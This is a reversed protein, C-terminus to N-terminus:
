KWFMKREAYKKEFFKLDNQEEDTKAMTKLRKHLQETKSSQNEYLASYALHLYAKFHQRTKGLTQAYYYHVEPDEPQYLLVQKYSDQSATDQGSDALLRAYHFLALYDRPNQATAQQLLKIATNKDGKLYNFRGAERLIIQDNPQADLALAFAKQAENIKNLRDYLIGLGLCALTKRPGKAQELFFQLATEPNGYRGRILTQIRLFEEEDGLKFKDPTLGAHELRAGLESIREPIAPHTNLYAPVEAGTSWQPRQIARFADLIGYPSYGAALIYSMGVQDAESEDARSYSLMAAQGAAIAGVVAATGADGGSKGGLLAGALMGLASLINIRQAKALRSALHRQTIHAMEHALVGALEAEHKM